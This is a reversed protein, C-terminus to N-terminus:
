KKMAFRLSNELDDLRENGLETEYSYCSLIAVNYFMDRFFGNREFHNLYMEENDPYYIANKLAAILNTERQENKLLMESFKRMIDIYPTNWTASFLPFHIRNCYEIIEESFVHGERVSIILGGAHVPVLANIYEKLWEESTYNLGSNFVLEDGHLLPAFDVGEVMHIWGIKKGFCGTTVLKVDYEPLIEEYLRKLEIAM